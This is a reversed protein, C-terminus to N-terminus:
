DSDNYESLALMYLSGIYHQYLLNLCYYKGMVTIIHWNLSIILKFPKADCTSTVGWNDVLWRVDTFDCGVLTHM